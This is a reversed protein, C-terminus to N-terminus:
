EAAEQKPTPDDGFRLLPHIWDKADKLARTVPATLDAAKLKEWGASAFGPAVSRGMAIRAARPFLDVFEETPEVMERFVEPVDIGCWSALFDHVPVQYGGANLSRELMLGAVVAAARRRFPGFSNAFEAFAERHDPLTMSPHAKLEAIAKEWIGHAVTRQVHAESGPSGDRYGSSLRRAGVEHSHGGQLELRALTWIVYDQALQGNYLDAERVLAARLAERRIARLAMIGEATLGHTERIAVDAQQRIGYGYSADIAHSMPPITGVSPGSSPRSAIPGASVPANDTSAAVTPSAAKEAKRREKRSAWWFRTDVEGNPEITLTAFIDGNPLDIRMRDGIAALEREMPIYDRDIEAIQRDREAADIASNDVITEARVELELMEMKLFELRAADADSAPCPEASIELDRAIGGYEKDRPVEREFRLDDRGTQRRLLARIRDLKEEALKALLGEDVVRGRAEADDAFLDLEYRGGAKTYAAEGVFRLMMTLDSDGIKLMRRITAADRNWGSGPINMIQVWVTHQLDQDETAAFARAQDQSIDARELAAFIEPHLNGLRAWRRVTELTQGNTDAIDKLSRGRAHARAVAAYVEYPRLDVRVLNEALSLDVLEAEDTIERTIVEIPHNSPLRGSDILLKFARYRRGGALAGWKKKAGRKAPMPHVVLPYLQGRALLSEAMGEVANADLANQRVNYPSVCLDGITMTTFSVSSRRVIKERSRLISPSPNGAGIPPTQDARPRKAQPAEPSSPSEGPLRANLLALQHGENPHLADLSVCEPCACLADEPLHIAGLM